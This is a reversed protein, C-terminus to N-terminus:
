NTNNTSEGKLWEEPDFDIVQFDAQWNVLSMVHRALTPRKGKKDMNLYVKGEFIKRIVLAQKRSVKKIGARRLKWSM